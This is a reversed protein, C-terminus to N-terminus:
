IYYEFQKGSISFDTAVVALQLRNVTLAVRSKQLKEFSAETM